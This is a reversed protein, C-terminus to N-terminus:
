RSHHSLGARGQRKDQQSGSTVRAYEEAGDKLKPLLNNANGIRVVRLRCPQSNWIKSAVVGYQPKVWRFHQQDVSDTGNRRNRIPQVNILGETFAPIAKCRHNMRSGDDRGFYLQCLSHLNHSARNELGSGNDGFVADDVRSCPDVMIADHVRVRMHRRSGHQAPAHMHTRAGMDASSRRHDLAHVYCGIGNHAGSRNHKGIYWFGTGDDPNGGPRNLYPSLAIESFHHSGSGYVDDVADVGLPRQMFGKLRGKLTQAINEM